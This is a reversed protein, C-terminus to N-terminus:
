RLTADPEDDEESTKYIQQVAVLRMNHLMCSCSDVITGASKFNGTREIHLCIFFLGIPDKRTNKDVNPHISFLLSCLLKHYLEFYHEDVMEVGDDILDSLEVIYANQQDSFGVEIPTDDELRHLRIAFHILREVVVV